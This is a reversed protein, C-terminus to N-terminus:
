MCRVMWGEDGDGVRVGGVGWGGLGWWWGRLWRDGVLWWGDGLVWWGYYHLALTHLSLLYHYYSYHRTTSISPKTNITATTNTNSGTSTNIYDALALDPALTTWAHAAQAINPALSHPARVAQAITWVTNTNHNITLLLTTTNMIPTTMTHVGWSRAHLKIVRHWACWMSNADTNGNSASNLDHIILTFVSVCKCLHIMDYARAAQAQNQACANGKRGGLEKRGSTWVKCKGIVVSLCM